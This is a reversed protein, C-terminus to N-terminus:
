AARPAGRQHPISRFVDAFLVFMRQAVQVIAQKDAELMVKEMLSEFFKMHEQDLAGHSTLYRFATPPLELAQQVAGAGRSALMVSTSELVYVMGFFGMPNVRNIYDYAYAVMLETAMRPQATRAAE